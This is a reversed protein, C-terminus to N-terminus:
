ALNEKRLARDPIPLTPDMVVIVRLLDILEKIRNAKSFTVKIYMRVVMVLLSIVIGFYILIGLVIVLDSTAALVILALLASNYVEPSSSAVPALVLQVSALLLNYVYAVFEGWVPYFVLVLASWKWLTEKTLEPIQSQYVEITNVVKERDLKDQNFYNCERLKEIIVGRRYQEFHTEHKSGQRSFVYKQFEPNTRIFRSNKSKIRFLFFWDFIGLSVATTIMGIGIWEDYILVFIGAAASLIALIAITMWLQFLRSTGAPLFVMKWVSTKTYTEM